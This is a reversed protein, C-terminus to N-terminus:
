DLLHHIQSANAYDEKLKYAKTALTASQPQHALLADWHAHYANALNIMFDTKASVIPKLLMTSMINLVMAYAHDM